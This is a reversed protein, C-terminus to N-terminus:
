VTRQRGRTPSETAIPISPPAYRRRPHRVRREPPGYGRPYDLSSRENRALNRGRPRAYRRRGPAARGLQCRRLRLREAASASDFSSTTPAYPASLATIGGPLSMASGNLTGGKTTNLFIGGFYMSQSGLQFFADGSNTTSPGAIFYNNVVDQTFKGGTDGLTYGSQFNYVVNNVYQTDGKALPNRNHANAFINEFWTVPTSDVHANFQQGIPDALLSRQFTVNGGSNIDLNDWDSFEVSVNDFILNMDSDAAIGSKDTDPDDTGQRVRINRV